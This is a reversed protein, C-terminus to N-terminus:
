QNGGAKLLRRQFEIARDMEARTELLEAMEIAPLHRREIVAWGHRAALLELLRRDKTVGLLADLRTISIILDDRSESAYANLVNETVAEGLYDTMAKAVDARSRGCAKLTESVAKSLMRAVTSAKVREPVYAAVPSAPRWDLLDMQDRHRPRKTM